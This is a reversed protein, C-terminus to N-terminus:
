NISARGKDGKSTIRTCKGKKEWDSVQKQLELIKEQRRKNVKTSSIVGKLQKSVKWVEGNQAGAKAELYAWNKWFSDRLANKHAKVKVIAPKHAHKEVLQVTYKFVKALTVPKGESDKMERAGWPPAERTTHSHWSSCTHRSLPLSAQNREKDGRAASAAATCQQAAAGAHAVLVGLVQQQWWWWCPSHVMPSLTYPTGM